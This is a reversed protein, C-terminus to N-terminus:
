GLIPMTAYLEKATSGFQWWFKARKRGIANKTLTGRGPKVKEEVIAMLDPWHRWCEEETREGFNIVYRHHKHMPNTNVEEGGIYPFIVERNRPDQKILRQMEALPTAVGKKDTDDFTFGM